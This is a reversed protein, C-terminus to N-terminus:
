RRAMPESYNLLSGLNKDADTPGTITAGLDQYADGIHIIAPNDGNIEIIPPESAV